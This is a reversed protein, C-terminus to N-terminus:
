VLKLLQLIIGLHIGEHYLNFTIADEINKLTVNISTTYTNYQKFLNNNYDKEFEQPLQLFLKKIENIENEAVPQLPKSGKQYKTIMEEPILCPLGSLKYCLLQQTVVLHGLNWIINNKFGNPIHNLQKNNCSSVANYIFDRSQKLVEFQHQM